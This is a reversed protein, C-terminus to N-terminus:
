ASRWRSGGGDRHRGYLDRGAGMPRAEPRTLYENRSARHRSADVGDILREVPQRLLEARSYGFLAELQRNIAVIEGNGDVVLMAVPAADFTEDYSIALETM